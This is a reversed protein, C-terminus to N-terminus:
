LDNLDVMDLEEETEQLGDHEVSSELFEILASVHVDENTSGLCYSM